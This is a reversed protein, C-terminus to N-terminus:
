LGSPGPKREEEHCSNGASYMKLSVALEDYALKLRWKVWNPKKDLSEAIEDYTLGSYQHLLIVARNDPDLKGIAAKVAKEKEEKELISAPENAAKAPVNEAEEGTVNQRLKSKRIEDLCLNTAIRYIWSSFKKTQKYSDRKQVIKLFVEQVVDRAKEENRLM